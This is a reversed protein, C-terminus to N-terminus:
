GGGTRELGCGGLVPMMLGVGRVKAAEDVAWANQALRKQTAPTLGNAELWNLLNQTRGESNVHRRLHHCTLLCAPLCASLYTPLYAHSPGLM